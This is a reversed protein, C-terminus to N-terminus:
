PTMRRFAIDTPAIGPGGSGGADFTDVQDGNRRHVTVSGSAGFVDTAARGVYLREDLADYGLTGIPNGSADFEAAVQNSAADFRVITQDALVAFAEDSRPTYFVRRGQSVSTLMTDLPVEATITGDTPNVARIAGDTRDVVNFDDDRITVGACFVLLEDQQDMALSRPGDCNMPFTEEVSLDAATVAAVSGDQGGLAVFIRDETALVGEPTGGIEVSDVVTNSSLDVQYLKPALPPSYDQGTVYATQNRADMYRPNQVGSIQGVRDNTEADFVGITNTEGFLLYIRDEHLTLSQIYSAFGSANTPIRTTEEGSPDYVTYSSNQNGFAGANAVYVGSTVPAPDTADESGLLDCGALLFVAAITSLLFSRRLPM